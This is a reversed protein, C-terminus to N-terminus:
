RRVRKVDAPDKNETTETEGEIEEDDSQDRSSGSTASRARVESIKPM